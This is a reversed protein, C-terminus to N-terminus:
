CSTSKLEKFISDYIGFRPSCITDHNTTPVSITEFNVTESVEIECWCRKFYDQGSTGTFLDSEPLFTHVKLPRSGQGRSVKLKQVLQQLYEALDDIHSGGKLCLIAESNAGLSEEESEYKRQYKDMARKVAVSVGWIDEITAKDDEERQPTPLVISAAGGSFQMVPTITSSLFNTIYSQNRIVVNPLM